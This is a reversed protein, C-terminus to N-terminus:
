GDVFGTKLDFTIGAHAVQRVGNADFARIRHTFSAVSHVDTWVAKARTFLELLVLTPM